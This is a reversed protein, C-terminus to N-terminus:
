NELFKYATKAIFSSKYFYVKNKCLFLAYFFKKISEEKM